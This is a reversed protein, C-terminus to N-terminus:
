FLANGYYWLTGKLVLTMPRAEKSAVFSLIKKKEYMHVYRRRSGPRPQQLGMENCKWERRTDTYFFVNCPGRVRELGDIAVWGHTRRAAATM